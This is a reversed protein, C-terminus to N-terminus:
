IFNSAARDQKNCTNETEIINGQSGEMDIFTDVPKKYSLDPFVTKIGIIRTIIV